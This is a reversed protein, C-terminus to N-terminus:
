RVEDLCLTQYISISLGSVSEAHKSNCCLLAMGLLLGLGAFGCVLANLVLAKTLGEIVIPSAHSPIDVGFVSPAVAM